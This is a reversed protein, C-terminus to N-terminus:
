FSYSLYLLGQSTGPQPVLSIGYKEKLVQNYRGVSGALRSNAVSDLLFGVGTAGCGSLFAATPFEGGFAAYGLSYGMLFGGVGSPVLSAYHYLKYSRLQGTAEEDGLSLVMREVENKELKDGNVKFSPAFFGKSIEIKRFEEETEEALAQVALFMLILIVATLLNKKLHEM